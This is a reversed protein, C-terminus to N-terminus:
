KNQNLKEFILNIIRETSKGDLYDFFKSKFSNIKYDEFDNNKISNLIGEQSYIIKGPVFTKYEYYFSRESIYNELDFAYFLMPIDLLAAEFVVSSYDSILIDTIFLLDNIDETIDIDVINDKYENPIKFHDKVFFHHKMIIAYGDGLENYLEVPNFANIPYYGNKRNGGRYTPAFLIIKKNELNPYRNYFKEKASKAYDDDFFVDTRPVGLPLVKENSIGFAEAYCDIISSSSVIANDYKRNATDNLKPAGPKGLRSFGFTKFAGCAHWVQILYQDTINFYNMKKFYADLLIVDAQAMQIYTKIRHKFSTTPFSQNCTSIEMSINDYKQLEEYIFKLNGTIKVDRESVFMIRNKKKSVKRVLHYGINIMKNKFIIFSNEIGINSFRSIRWLIHRLGRKLPNPDELYLLGGSSTLNPIKAMIFIADLIFFPILVIAIVLSISRIVYSLFMKTSHKMNRNHSNKVRKLYFISDESFKLDYNHDLNVLGINNPDIHIKEIKKNGYILFLSIRITNWKNDPFLEKIILKHNFTVYDENKFSFYARKRQLIPLLLNQKGNNFYVKLKPEFVDPDYDLNSDVNITILGNKVSFEKLNLKNKM